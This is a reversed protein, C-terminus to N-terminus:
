QRYATQPAVIPDFSPKALSVVKLLDTSLFTEIKLVARFKLDGEGRTPLGQRVRKSFLSEYRTHWWAETLLLVVRQTTRRPRLLSLLGAATSAFLLDSPHGYQLFAYCGRSSPDIRHAALREDKQKMPTAARSTALLLLLLM